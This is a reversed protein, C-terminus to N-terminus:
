YRNFYEEVLKREAVTLPEQDAWDPSEIDEAERIASDLHKTVTKLIEKIKKIYADVKTYIITNDDSPELMLWTFVDSNKRSLLTKKTANYNGADQLANLIYDSAEPTYNFCNSDSLEEFNTLLSDIFREFPNSGIVFETETEGNYIDIGVKEVRQLFEFLNNNEFLNSLKINIKDM